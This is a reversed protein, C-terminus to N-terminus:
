FPCGTKKSLENFSLEGSETSGDAFIWTPYGEINNDKCEQKQTKGDPESCEVYPLYKAADAFAKKQNQCHACWFAGYFKAGSDSICQAFTKLDKGEPSTTNIGGKKLYYLFGAGVIISVALIIIFSSSKEEHAM